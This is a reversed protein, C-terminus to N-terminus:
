RVKSKRRKGFLEAYLLQVEVSWDHAEEGTELSIATGVMGRLTGCRRAMAFLSCRYDHVHIFSRREALPEFNCPEIDHCHDAHADNTEADVCSM